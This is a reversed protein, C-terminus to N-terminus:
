RLADLVLAAPQRQLFDLLRAAIRQIGGSCDSEIHLPLVPDHLSLRLLFWGQEGLGTCAVRVGEQTGSVLNWDPLAAVEKRLAELVNEGQVVFDTGSLGLRFEQSEVPERLDAIRELLTHGQAHARALEILLLAMLYAGDDLWYNERLAAHGSTEIALWCPQGSQNLRQAENIVNRYGRRFRYHIGGLSQEIFETLGESTVSDTVITTGPHERLVIAAALAVLRNRNIEQGSSDMAGARDVDPDFAIGFDAGNALVAARLAAMTDPHEPNPVHHPFTGDPHLCQSGSTDAGLPQLVRDVFFGGAGNGADVIIRLGRLPQEPFDPHAVGQRIHQVLQASYVSLFDATERKGPPNSRVPIGHEALLLLARIDERDLGGRATFFKCGNRHAPLHSATLMVAGDCIYGPTVTSMFMAPTSALGCDLVRAGTACIGDSLAALLAPGSIRSDRGVAITLQDLTQGLNQGLWYAFASGLTRVVTPTLHIRAPTGDLPDLAVGRIDSGNQLAMWDM